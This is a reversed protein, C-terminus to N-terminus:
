VAFSAFMYVLTSKNHCIVGLCKYEEEWSYYSSLYHQIVQPDYLPLNIAALLM